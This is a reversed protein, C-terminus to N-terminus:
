TFHIHVRFISSQFYPLNSTHFIPFISSQFYPLNALILFHIGTTLVGSHTNTNWSLCDIAVVVIGLYRHFVTSSSQFRRLKYQSIHSIGGGRYGLPITSVELALSGPNLGWDLVADYRRRSLRTTYHQSRTRSVTHTTNVLIQYCVSPVAKAMVDYLGEPM